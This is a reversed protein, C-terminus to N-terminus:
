GGFGIIVILVWLVILVAAGIGAAKVVVLNKNKDRLASIALWAGWLAAVMSSIGLAGLVMPGNGQMRVSAGVCLFLLALSVVDAGVAVFSGKALKKRIYNYRKKKAAM